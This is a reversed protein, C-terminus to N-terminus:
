CKLPLYKGDKSLTFIEDKEIKLLSSEDFSTGDKVAVKIATGCSSSIERPVAIMKVSVDGTKVVDIKELTRKCLLSEYHTHFTIVYEMVKNQFKLRGDM